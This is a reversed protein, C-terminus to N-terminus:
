RFHRIPFAQGPLGSEVRCGDRGAAANGKAVDLAEKGLMEVLGRTSPASGQSEFDGRLQDGLAIGVFRNGGFKSESIWGVEAVLEFVAAAERGL